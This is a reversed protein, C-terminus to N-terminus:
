KLTPDKNVFTKLERVQLGITNEIERVSKMQEAREEQTMVQAAQSSQLFAKYKRTKEFEEMLGNAFKAYVLEKQNAEAYKLAEDPNEQALKLLTNHKTGFKERLEYAENVGQGPVPDYMYTSLLFYKHLPRDMKDPNLVGDAMMTVTAATTGFWQNLFNDVNIPSPAVGILEKSAKAVTKALESTTPTVRMEPDLTRQYIGELPRGGLFSFNTFAELVPRVATPVPVVRGGFQEFAYKLVTMTADAAELEEKTGKRRLYELTMEVPVKTIAALENPVPLKGMGPIIWNSSRTRLNMGEYDDDDGVALSYIAALASLKVLQAIFMRKAVGRGEGLQVDTGTANRYLLDMSQVYANFFPITATATAILQGSGRRRFNIFERARTSALHEDGTEKMFQDYIAKRVALDSARTIGEMRHVLEKFWPRKIYGFDQLLATSPDRYDFDYEGTVGKQGMQRVYPHRRGTIEYWAVALFNRLIPFILAYPNKVGSLVFARQIDDTVQKLSFPPLATVTTRLMNSFNGMQQVAWSKPLNLATFAKVDWRSQMEFYRDEGNMYVKVRHEPAINGNGGRYQAAGIRELTRATAVAADNNLIQGMMWGFNKIQNDLVNQTERRESGIIEPLNGLSSLGRGTRRSSRFKSGFEEMRDFPIYEVAETWLDRDAESIRGVEYMQNVLRVRMKQLMDAVERLQPQSNFKALMTDIQANASRPDRNSLKHIPIGLQPNRRFYDLRRAELMKSLENKADTFSVGNAKAWRSLVDFADKASPVDEVRGAQYLGNDRNKILSGQEFLSVMLKGYDNAQRLQPLPNINGTADRLKGDFAASIKKAVSASADVNITRFRTAANEGESAAAEGAVSRVARTIANPRPQYLESSTTINDPAYLAEFEGKTITPMVGRKPKPDKDPGMKNLFDAVSQAPMYRDASLTKVLKKLSDAVSKFFKEVISVPKKDTIAWRAVNNAFWENFGRAYLNFQSNNHGEAKGETVKEAVSPPYISKALDLSNLGKTKAFWADYELLVADQVVQPASNFAVDQIVHGLEHAVAEVAQAETLGKNVYIVFDKTGLRGKLGLPKRKISNSFREVVARFVGHLHLGPDNLDKADSVMLIRVNGLGLKKTLARIYDALKPNVSKGAVVNSDAGTFPGDPYKAAKKAEDWLSEDEEEVKAEEAKPEEEVEAEPEEEVEVEAEEAKPEEAKAKKAARPKRAPKAEPEEAEAETEEVEVEEAKPTPKKKYVSAINDADSITPKGGEVVKVWAAQGEEDLDTFKVDEPGYDNWANKAKTLKAKSTKKVAPKETPAQEPERGEAEAQVTETAKPANSTGEEPAFFATDFEKLFRSPDAVDFQTLLHKIVFPVREQAPLADLQAMFDKGFLNNLPTSPETNAERRAYGGTRDSELEIYDPRVRVRVPIGKPNTLNLTVGDGDKDSFGLFMSQATAVPNPNGPTTLNKPQKFTYQINPGSNEIDYDGYDLNLTPAYPVNPETPPESKTVIPERIVATATTKEPAVGVGTPQEVDDLGGPTAEAPTGAVVPPEGSGLPGRDEIDVAVGREGAGRETAPETGDDSRVGANQPEQYPPTEPVLLTRVLQAKASRGEALKPDAEVMARVDDVTKGEINKKFWPILSPNIAGVSGLTIAGPQVAPATTAEKLGNKSLRETVLARIEDDSKGVLMDADIPAGTVLVMGSANTRKYKVYWNGSYPEVSEIEFEGIKKPLVRDLTARQEVVQQQEAEVGKSAPQDFLNLQGKVRRTRLIPEPPGGTGGFDLEGQTQYASTPPPPTFDFAQQAAQDTAQVLVDYQRQLPRINRNLGNIVKQAEEVGVVDGAERAQDQYAQVRDRQDKLDFLETRVDAINPTQPALPAAPPPPPVKPIEAGRFLMGQGGEPLRAMRRQQEQMLAQQAQEQQQVLEQEQQLRYAEQAAQQREEEAQRALENRAGSRDIYRGVGGLPGGVLGALYAAEGYEKLADPSTLELGAQAREIVSQAVEVPMEVAAGRVVGGALTRSAAKVLDDAARTSALAADDAIGLIGKVVRKGLTLGLGVSELAAQGAAGLGASGVDIDVPRGAKIQEEAQREVNSGFMSAGLGLAGGAVGGVVSGVPGFPSGAMAGLRGGAVTAGITAGQGALARPIQSVAEGAAPLLGREAYIRKIVELSPGEGAERDIEEGRAIGARAAEEPSGFLTEIGTRATSYLQKGGRVLEDIIGSKKEEALVSPAPKNLTQLRDYEALALQEIEDPELGEPVEFRGIRGDPLEVRAIPM